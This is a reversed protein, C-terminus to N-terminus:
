NKKLYLYKDWVCIIHKLLWDLEILIPFDM